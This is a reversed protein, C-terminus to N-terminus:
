RPVPRPRDSTREKTSSCPPVTVSSEATPRPVVTVQTNGSLCVPSRVAAHSKALCSVVEGNVSRLNAGRRERGGQPSLCACDSQSAPICLQAGPVAQEREGPLPTPHPPQLRSTPEGEGGGEGWGFDSTESKPWTM